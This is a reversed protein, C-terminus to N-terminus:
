CKVKDKEKFIIRFGERSEMEPIWKEKRSLTVTGSSPAGARKNM